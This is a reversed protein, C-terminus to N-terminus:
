TLYTNYLRNPNPHTLSLPIQYSSAPITFYLLINAYFLFISLHFFSDSLLLTYYLTHLNGTVFSVCKIKKRFHPIKKFPIGANIVPFLINSPFHSFIVEGLIHKQPLSDLPRSDAVNDM